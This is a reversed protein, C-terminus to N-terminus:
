PAPSVAASRGHSRTRGFPPSHPPEARAASGELVAQAVFRGLVDQAEAKFHIGDNSIYEPHDIVAGFLDNVAVGRDAALTAAIRNRKRVRKTLPALSGQRGRSWVPTTSAVILRSGGSASAILDLADALGKAYHDEGYDWGHLGNNFHVVAFDYEKLLLGLHGLFGADCVSASTAMRACAFTGALRDSVRPHYARAISDGVLLLRPLQTKDAAEVWVDIWEIRERRIAAPSAKSRALPAKM